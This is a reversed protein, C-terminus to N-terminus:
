GSRHCSSPIQCSLAPHLGGSPLPRFGRVSRFPISGFVDIVFLFPLLFLLRADCLVGGCGPCSGSVLLSSCCPGSFFSVLRLPDDDILLCGESLCIIASVLSMPSRVSGGCICCLRQHISWLCMPFRSSYGDAECSFRMGGPGNM